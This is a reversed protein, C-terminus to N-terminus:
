TRLFFTMCPTRERTTLPLRVSRHARLVEIQPRHVEWGAVEACREHGNRLLSSQKFLNALSITPRTGVISPAEHAPSAADSPKLAGCIKWTPALPDPALAWLSRFNYCPQADLRVRKRRGWVGCGAWRLSVRAEGGRGDGIQLAAVRM